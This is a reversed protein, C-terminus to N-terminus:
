SMCDWFLSWISYYGFKINHVVFHTNRTAVIIDYENLSLLEFLFFRIWELWECTIALGGKISTWKLLDNTRDIRDATISASCYVHLAVINLNIRRKLSLVYYYQIRRSSSACIFQHTPLLLTGRDNSNESHIKTCRQM